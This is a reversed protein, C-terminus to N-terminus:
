DSEVVWLIGARERDVIVAGHLYVYRSDGLGMGVYYRREDGFLREFDQWMQRAARPPITDRTHGVQSGGVLAEMAAERAHAADVEHEVWTLDAPREEPPPWPSDDFHELVEDLIEEESRGAARLAEISVLDVLYYGHMRPHALVRERLDLFDPDDISDLTSGDDDPATADASPETGADHVPESDRTHGSARRERRRSVRVLHTVILVCLMLAVILLLGLLGTLWECPPPCIRTFHEAM